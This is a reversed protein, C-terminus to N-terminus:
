YPRDRKILTFLVYFFSRLFKLGLNLFTAWKQTVPVRSIKHYILLTNLVSELFIFYLKTPRYTKGSSPTLTSSIKELKVVFSVDIRVLVLM